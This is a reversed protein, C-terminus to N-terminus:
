QINKLLNASSWSRDFFEFNEDDILENLNDFQNYGLELMVNKCNQQVLDMTHWLSAETAESPPKRWIQLHKLSDRNTGYRKEAKTNNGSTNTWIYLFVHIIM